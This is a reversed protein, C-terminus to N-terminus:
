FQFEMVGKKLNKAKGLNGESKEKREDYIMEFGGMKTEQSMSAYYREKREFFDNPFLVNFCDSLLDKKFIFDNKTTGLLSPSANVEILWPKFFEDILIDFGYLEFCHNNNSIIYQVSKLAMVYIQDIDNLLKQLKKKGHNLEIFKFLCSLPWKGGHKDNYKDSKKQFSVNTLHSFLEKNPDKTNDDIKEYDEFCVRSFGEKYRWVILPNYNTVLIYTRLDFKRGLILLPNNLYKCIVFRDRLNNNNYNKMLNPLDKAEEKKTILKIDTGQAGCAPKFIWKTNKSKKFDTYFKQYELPLIYSRPIIKTNTDIIMGNKLKIKKIKFNLKKINKVLLDKRTLEYYNPFHNVLQHKQLRIKSRPNFIKTRITKVTAWYINFKQDEIPIIEWNREKCNQIITPRSIDSKYKIKLNKNKHTYNKKM